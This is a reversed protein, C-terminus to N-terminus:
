LYTKYIPLTKSERAKPGTLSNMARLYMDRYEFYYM